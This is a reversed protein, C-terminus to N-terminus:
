TETDEERQEVYESFGGDDRENLYDRFRAMNRFLADFNENLDDIQAQLDSPSPGSTDSDTELRDIQSEIRTVRADFEEVADGISTSEGRHDVIYEAVTEGRSTLSAVGPPLKNGRAQPQTVEILHRPLLKNNYRYNIKNNDDIGTLARLETTNAKGGHEFLARLIAQSQWDLEEVVTQPDTETGTESTAM